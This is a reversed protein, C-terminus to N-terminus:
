QGLFFSNEFSRTRARIQKFKKPNGRTSRTNPTLYAAASIDVWGNVIKYTMTLRNIKRQKELPVWELHKLLATITGKTTYVTSKAFSGPQRDKFENLYQHSQLYLSFLSPHQRRNISTSSTQEMLKVDIITWQIPASNLTSAETGLKSM